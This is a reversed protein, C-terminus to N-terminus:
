AKCDLKKCLDCGRESIVRGQIKAISDFRMVSFVCRSPKFRRMDRKAMAYRFARYPRM